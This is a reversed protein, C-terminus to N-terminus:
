AGPGHPDPVRFCWRRHSLPPPVRVVKSSGWTLGAQATRARRRATRRRAGCRCGGRRGRASARGARTRSARRASSRPRGRRADARGVGQVQGLRQALLLGRALQPRDRGGVARALRHDSEAVVRRDRRRHDPAVHQLVRAPVGGVRRVLRLDGLTPELRQQVELGHDAVEGPQRGGVGRQEVLAGGRGLRHRQHAAGVLARGAREDDVGVRQRLGDVHHAGAGLRHADLDDDGVEGVAQRVTLQAPDEDLVGAGGPLDEVRARDDRRGVLAVGEGDDGGVQEGQGQELRGALEAGVDHDARGLAEADREEVAARVGAVHGHGGAELPVQGPRRTPTETSASPRGAYRSARCVRSCCMRRSLAVDLM